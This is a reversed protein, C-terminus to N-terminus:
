VGPAGRRTPVCPVRQDSDACNYAVCGHPKAEESGYADHDSTDGVAASCATFATEQELASHISALDGGQQKCSRLAEGQLSFSTLHGL